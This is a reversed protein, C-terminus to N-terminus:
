SAVAELSALKFKVTKGVRVGMRAGAVDNLLM